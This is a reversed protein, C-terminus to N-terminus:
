HCDCKLGREFLKAENERRTVLGEIQAFFHRQRLRTDLKFEILRGNIENLVVEIDADDAAPFIQKLQVHTIALPHAISFQGVLGVPHFHCVKPWSELGVKEAVEDWWSLQKIREKEALWNLHPTSGSHGLMEDLPDWTRSRYCWESAYDIILRSLSQAHAPLHLAAQIEDGSMKGNRDRDIIQYLRSM